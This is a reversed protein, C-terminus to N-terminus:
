KAAHVSVASVLGALDQVDVTLALSCSVPQAPVYPARASPCWPPALMCAFAGADDAQGHM